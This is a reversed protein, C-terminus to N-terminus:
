LCARAASGIGEEQAGRRIQDISRKPREQMCETEYKMHCRAALSLSSLYLPTCVSLPPSPSSSARAPFLTLVPTTFLSRFFWPAFSGVKPFVLFPAEALSMRCIQTSSGRTCPNFYQELRFCCMQFWYESDMETQGALIYVSHIDLLLRANSPFCIFLTPRTAATPAATFRKHGRVTLVCGTQLGVFETKIPLFINSVERPLLARSCYPRYNCPHALFLQMAADDAAAEICKPLNLQLLHVGGKVM